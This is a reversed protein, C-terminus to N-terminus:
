PWADDISAFVDDLSAPGRRRLRADGAPLGRRQGIDSVGEIEVPMEDPRDAM